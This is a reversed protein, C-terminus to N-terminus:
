VVQLLAGEFFEVDLPRDFHNRIEHIAIEIASFFIRGQAGLPGRIALRDQHVQRIETGDLAEGVDDLYERENALLHACLQYQDPVSRITAGRFVQNALLFEPAINMEQSFLIAYVLRQRLRVQETAM